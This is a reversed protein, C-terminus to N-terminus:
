KKPAPRPTARPAPKAGRPGPKKGPPLAVGAKRTPGPTKKKKDGVEIGAEELQQLVVGITARARKTAEQRCEPDEELARLLDKAGDLMRGQMMRVEGRNALAPPSYPNISLAATYREEAEDLENERQAISGLALHFYADRPDLALLGEFVHKAEDLKGQRIFRHGLKAMEYQKEKTIGELEGLTIVGAVFKTLRKPDWAVRKAAGKKVAPRAPAAAAKKAAPAPAPKKPPPAPARKPAPIAAAKAKPAAKDIEATPVKIKTETKAALRGAMLAGTLDDKMKRQEAIKEIATKQDKPDKTAM